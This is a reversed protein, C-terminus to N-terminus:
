DWWFTWIPADVLVPAIERVTRFGQDACEDCFASHEAAIEEASGLTRPPRQVLLRVIAGPGLALLRAGFRNEWSRLV